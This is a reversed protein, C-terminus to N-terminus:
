LDKKKKQLNILLTCIKDINFKDTLAEFNQVMVM